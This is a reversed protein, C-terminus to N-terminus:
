STGGYLHGCTPLFIQSTCCKVSVGFKRYYLIGEAQLFFETDIGMSAGFVQSIRIKIWRKLCATGDSNNIWKNNQECDNKPTNYSKQVELVM